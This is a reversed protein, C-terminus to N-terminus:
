WRQDYTRGNLRLDDLSYDALWQFRDGLLASEELVLSNVPQSPLVCAQYEAQWALQDSAGFPEDYAIEVPLEASGTPGVGFQLRAYSKGDQALIFMVAWDCAGFVRHFTEEDTLSPRPSDGPHTHVWIRAFEEPRRGLDVQQDFFDAVADDDFAVSAWDCEQRVLRVDEVLLPRDRASIGFGGIETDGKDRLYVLKAWAYPSFPLSPLLPRRFLKPKGSPKKKVPSKGAPQASNKM